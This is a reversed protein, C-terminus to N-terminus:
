RASSDVTRRTARDRRHARLLSPMSLAIRAYRPGLRRPETAARWLWELGLFQIPKPARRVEGSLFDLGGGINLFVGHGIERCMRASFLEQKPAGLAVFVIDPRQDRFTRAITAFQSDDRDFGFPPAYRGVIKLSPAHNLLVESAATLRADTSGFLFVTRGAAAAAVAVPVILESGAVREPLPDKELKSLWVFPMGDATVLDATRYAERFPPSERLKLVHDLNATIVSRAPGEGAWAIVKAVVDAASVRAVNVGFLRVTDFAAPPETSVHDPAGTNM